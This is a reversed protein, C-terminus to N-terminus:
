FTRPAPDEIRLAFHRNDEGNQRHVVFLLCEVTTASAEAVFADFARHGGNMHGIQLHVMQEHVM